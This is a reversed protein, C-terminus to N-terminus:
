MNNLKDKVRNYLEQAKEHEAETVTFNNNHIIEKLLNAHSMEDKAIDRFIQKSLSDSSKKCLDLYKEVDNLEELFKQKITAQILDDTPNAQKLENM